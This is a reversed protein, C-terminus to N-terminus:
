KNYKKKLTNEVRSIYRLALIAAFPNQKDLIKPQLYICDWAEKLIPLKRENAIFREVKQKTFLKLLFSRTLIVTVIEVNVDFSNKPFVKATYNLLKDTIKWNDPYTLLVHCLEHILVFTLQELDKTIFITLPDSFPHLNKKPRILYAIWSKPLVFGLKKSFKFFRDNHKSWYRYYASTFKTCNRFDNLTYKEGVLNSLLKEYIYSHQFILKTMFSFTGEVM